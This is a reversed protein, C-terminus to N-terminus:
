EISGVFLVSALLFSLVPGIEIYRSIYVDRTKWEFTSPSFDGRALMGLLPNTDGNIVQVFYM